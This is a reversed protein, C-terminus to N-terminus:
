YLSRNVSSIIERFRQCECLVSTRRLSAAPLEAKDSRPNLVETYFTYPSFLQRDAFFFFLSCSSESGRSITEPARHHETPGTDNDCNDHGIIINTKASM